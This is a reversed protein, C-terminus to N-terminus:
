QFAQTKEGGRYMNINSSELEVSLVWEHLYEHVYSVHM